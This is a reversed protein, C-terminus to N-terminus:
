VCRVYGGTHGIRRHPVLPKLADCAGQLPHHGTYQGHDQQNKHTIQGDATHNRARGVRYGDLRGFKGHGAQNRHYATDRDRICMEGGTSCATLGLALALALALSIGKKM